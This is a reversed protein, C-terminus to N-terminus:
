KHELGRNCLYSKFRSCQTFNYMPTGKSYIWSVLYHKFLSLIETFFHLGITLLLWRREWSEMRTQELSCQFQYFTCAFFFQIGECRLHSRFSYFKIKVRNGFSVSQGGEVSLCPLRRSVLVRIQVDVNELGSRKSYEKSDSCLELTCSTYKCLAKTCKIYIKTFLILISKGYSSPM